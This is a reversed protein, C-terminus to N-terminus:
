TGSIYYEVFRRYCVFMNVLSPTNKLYLKTLRPFDNVLYLSVLNPMCIEVVGSGRSNVIIFERVLDSKMESFNLSCGCLFLKDLLPCGSLIGQMVPNNLTFSRLRLKKLNPLNVYKPLVDEENNKFVYLKLQELSACTFLAHPLKLNTFGQLNLSIVVPKCSLASFIWARAASVHIQCIEESCTSVKQQSAQWYLRFTHLKSAGRFYLMNTVFHVFAAGTGKFVRKDFNLSPICTWLNRWQKSLVCTQIAEKPDMFSLIHVLVSEPLTSLDPLSQSMTPEDNSRSHKNPPEM